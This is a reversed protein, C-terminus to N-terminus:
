AIQTITGDPFIRVKARRSIQHLSYYVQNQLDQDSLLPLLWEILTISDGKYGFLEIIIKISDEELKEDSVLDLLQSIVTSDGLFVMARAALLRMEISFSKDTFIQKLYPISSNDNLWFIINFIKDQLGLKDVKCLLPILHPIDSSDGIDELLTAVEIKEVLDRNPDKLISLIEPKISVEALRSLINIIAKRLENDCNSDLLFEVLYEATSKDGLAWIATTIYDISDTSWEINVIDDLLQPLIKDEGLLGLYNAALARIWYPFQKTNFIDLLLNPGSVSKTEGLSVIIEELFDLSTSEDYLIEKLIPIIENEKYIILPKLAAARVGFNFTSDLFVKFYKEIIVEDLYQELNVIINIKVEDDINKENLLKVIDQVISEGSINFLANVVQGKVFATIQPSNFYSFLEPIISEDSSDGIYDVILEKQFDDLNINPILKIFKNVAPKYHIQSLSSILSYGLISYNYLERAFFIDILSDIYEYNRLQVVYYVITDFLISSETSRFLELLRSYILRIQEPSSVRPNGTLIKCALFLNHHFIDDKAHLIEDLLPTADGLSSYLLVVEEWWPEYLHSLLEEFGKVKMDYLELATFYEQLTLHLFGFWGIAQEKLLGHLATIETLLNLSEDQDLNIQPLFNYISKLLDKKRFYRLGKRHFHLAVFKLLDKKNETSFEHYRRYRRTADWKNLLVDACQRYLEGRRQPLELRKEYVICILALLLPNTALSAIRFNNDFEVLLSNALNEDSNSFWNNIFLEIDDPTLDLLELQHFSSPLGGNWGAFRSTVVIPIDPFRTVFSTIQSTAFDYHKKAIQEDAGVNVEDLGDLLLLLEKEDCLKEIYPRPDSFGFDITLYNAAYDLLSDFGSQIFKHLSIFLPFHPLGELDKKASKVALHKLMTSKGAGPDGLILCKRYEKVAEKPDISTKASEESLSRSISFWENPDLYESQFTEEQEKSPYVRRTNPRLCVNIYTNDLDIPHDMDLISIDKLSQILKERYLSINSNIREMERETEKILNRQEEELKRAEAKKKKREKLWSEIPKKVFFLGILSLIGTVVYVVIDSTINEFIAASDSPFIPVKSPKPTSTIATETVSSLTSTEVGPTTENQANVSNIFLFLLFLMVLFYLVVIDIRKKKM